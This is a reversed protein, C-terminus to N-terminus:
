SKYGTAFWDWMRPQGFFDEYGSVDEGWPYLVKKLKVAKFGVKKLRYKLEFEYYFKQRFGNDDFIGSVFDFKRKELINTTATLAAAESEHRSLEREHVLLAQYLVAEMAPCITALMGGSKLCEMLQHFANDVGRPSPMLVSNVAVAVDCRGAIASLDAMDARLFEVNPARPKAKACELMKASFDVAIVHAFNRSLFPLLSGVGCGVDAVTMTKRDPLARLADFLPNIVGDQFPSVVEEIYRDAIQDWRRTDM